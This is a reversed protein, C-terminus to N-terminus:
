KASPDVAAPEDPNGEGSKEPAQSQDQQQGETVSSADEGDGNGDVEEAGKDGKRDDNEDGDEEDQDEDEEGDEEGTRRGTAGKWLPPLIPWMELQINRFMQYSTASNPDLHELRQMVPDLGEHFPTNVCLSCLRTVVSIWNIIAEPSMTGCHQRFEITKKVVPKDVLNRFNYAPRYAYSSKETDLFVTSLCDYLEELTKAQWIRAVGFANARQHGSWQQLLEHGRLSAAPRYYPPLIRSAGRQELDDRDTEITLLPNEPGPAKGQRKAKRVGKKDLNAMLSNVRPGPAWETLPGCWIPHLQDLRPAAAYLLATIARLETLSFGKAGRGVHVHMMMSYNILIRFESQLLNVVYRVLELSEPAFHLIPSTVEVKAWHYEPTELEGVSVDTNVDWNGYGLGSPKEDDEGLGLQRKAKDATSKEQALTDNDRSDSIAPVGHDRLFRAIRYRINQYPEPDGVQGYHPHPLYAEIFERRSMGYRSQIDDPTWFVAVRGVHNPHMTQVADPHKHGIYVSRNDEPHPDPKGPDLYAVVFELEIGFTLLSGRGDSNPNSSSPRPSSSAM